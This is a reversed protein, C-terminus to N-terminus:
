DADGAGGDRIAAVGIATVDEGGGAVGTGVILGAADGRQGVSARPVVTASASVTRAVAFM